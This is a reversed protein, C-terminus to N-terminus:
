EDDEEVKVKIERREAFDVKGDHHFGCMAELTLTHEGPEDARYFIDNGIRQFGGSSAKLRIIEPMQLATTAFQIRVRVPDNALVREANASFSDILRGGEANLIVGPEPFPRGLYDRVAVAAIVPVPPQRPISYFERSDKVASFNPKVTIGINYYRSAAERDVSFYIGETLVAHEGHVPLCVMRAATALTDRAKAEDDSDWSGHHNLLEIILREHTETYTVGPISWDSVTLMNTWEQTLPREFVVSYGRHGLTRGSNFYPLSRVLRWPTTKSAIDGLETNWRPGSAQLFFITSWGQSLPALRVSRVAEETLSASYEMGGIVYRSSNEPVEAGPVDTAFCVASIAFVLMNDLAIRM